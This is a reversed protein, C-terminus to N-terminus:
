ALTIPDGGALILAARIEALGADAPVTPVRGATVRSRAAALWQSWEEWVERAAGENILTRGQEWARVTDISVALLTALQDQDLGMSTRIAQLLRGPIRKGEHIAEAEEDARARAAEHADRFADIIVAGARRYRRNEGTEEWVSNAHAAAAQAARGGRVRQVYALRVLEVRHGTGGTEALAQDADLGTLRTAEDRTMYRSYSDAVPIWQAAPESRIPTLTLNLYDAAWATEPSPSELHHHLATLAEDEGDPIQLFADVTDVDDGDVEIETRSIEDWIHWRM